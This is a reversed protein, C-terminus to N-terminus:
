TEMKLNQITKNMEKVQKITNEQLEKRSKQKEGKFGELEKGKNKQIEQLFNNIDKRIDRDDDHSTIKFWLRAKEPTKPFGTSATTTAHLESSAMYGQNRNSINKEKERVM